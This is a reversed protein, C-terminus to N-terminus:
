DLVVTLINKDKGNVSYQLNSGSRVYDIDIGGYNVGDPYATKTEEEFYPKVSAGDRFANAYLNFKIENLDAGTNNKYDIKAVAALTMEASNLSLSLSYATRGGGFAGFAGYFALGALLALCALLALRAAFFAAGGKKRLSKRM